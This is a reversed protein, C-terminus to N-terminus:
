AIRATESLAALLSLAAPLARIGHIKAADILCKRQDAMHSLTIPTTPSFKRSAMLALSLSTTVVIKTLPHTATGESYALMDLFAAINQHTNIVPM